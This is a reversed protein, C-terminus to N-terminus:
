RWGATVVFRRRLRLLPAIPLEVLRRLDVLKLGLAAGFDSERGSCATEEVDRMLNDEHNM